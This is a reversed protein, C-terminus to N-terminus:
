HPYDRQAWPGRQAIEVQHFWQDLKMRRYQNIYLRVYLIMGHDDRPMRGWYSKLLHLPRHWDLSLNWTKLKIKLPDVLDLAVEDWPSRPPNKQPLHDNEKGSSKFQQCEDFDPKGSQLQLISLKEQTNNPQFTWRYIRNSTMQSWLKAIQKQKTVHLLAPVFGVTWRM